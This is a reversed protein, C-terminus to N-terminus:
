TLLAGGWSLGEPVCWCTCGRENCQACGVGFGKPARASCARCTAYRRTVKSFALRYGRARPSAPGALFWGAGRPRLPLAM